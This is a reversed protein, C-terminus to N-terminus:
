TSFVSVSLLLRSERVEEVESVTCVIYFVLVLFLLSLSFFVCCRSLFYMDVLECVFAVLQLFRMWVSSLRHDLSDFALTICQLVLFVWSVCLFFLCCFLLFMCRVHLHCEEQKTCSYLGCVASNWSWM